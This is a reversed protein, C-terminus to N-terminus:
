GHFEEFMRLHFQLNNRCYLRRRSLWVRLRRAVSNFKLFSGSHYEQRLNGLKLLHVRVEAFPKRSVPNVKSRVRSLQVRGQQALQAVFDADSNFGIIGCL